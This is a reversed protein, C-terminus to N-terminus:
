ATEDAEGDNEDPLSPIKEEILYKRKKVAYKWAEDPEYDEEQELKRKTERIKRHTSDKKLQNCLRIWELYKERVTKSVKPLLDEFAAVKASSFSEGGAIYNNALETYEDAHRRFAVDFIQKWVDEEEEEDDDTDEEDTDEEEEETDEEEEIDEEEEFDEEEEETYYGLHNGGYHSAKYKSMDLNGGYGNYMTRNAGDNVDSM